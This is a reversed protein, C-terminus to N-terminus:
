DDGGVLAFTRYEYADSGPKGVLTGTETLVSYYPVNNSSMGTVDRLWYPKGSIARVGPRIRPATFQDFYADTRYSAGGTLSHGFLMIENMMSVYQSPSTSVTYRHVGQQGVTNNYYTYYHEKYDTFSILKSESTNFMTKYKDLVTSYLESPRKNAFGIAYDKNNTLSSELATDNMITTMSLTDPSVILHHETIEPHLPHEYWPDIDWIRWIIGNSDKWYDGIFMDTFRGNMIASGQESTVTSGLSEGRWISRHWEGPMVKNMFENALTYAEIRKTGGIVNDIIFYDSNKANEIGNRTELNKILPM